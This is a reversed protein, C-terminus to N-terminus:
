DRIRMNTWIVIAGCNQAGGVYEVPVFAGPYVEVAVLERGSVYGNIDGPTMSNWRINDVYYYMCGGWVVSKRISTVVDNGYPGRRVMLGPTVRLVDTLKTPRIRDIEEPGFYYGFGLRRRREFGVRELARTRRALVLVPEMINMAKLLTISVAKSERSSLDVSVATAAYGLHRAILVHTGSTLNRLTFQGKEDTTTVANTGAMEVRTGATPASGELVVRGAVVANGSTIGSDLASLLLTRAFLATPSEGLTITVQATETNGRKAQLNAEMASPLGCLSFRGFNDTSDRVVRPTTKIRNRKAVAFDVWALSVDAGPVPRLTEPDIVQGIVASNGHSNPSPTCSQAVLTAASPVGLIVVSASDAALKFPKTGLAIGLTDLVPHFVGVQYAGPPLSDLTFRGLSDTRASVRAGQVLVDAGVLYGGHLSDVVVGVIAARGPQATESHQTVQAHAVPAVLAATGSLAALFVRELNWLERRIKM